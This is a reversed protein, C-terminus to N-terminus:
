YLNDTLGVELTDLVYHRATTEISKHGLAKQAKRIDEKALNTGVFRRFDHPKVHKFNCKAAYKQVVKWIGTESIHTNNARNGRGAFSTFIYECPLPQVELWKQILEYAEVSLHADRYEIDTKGCVQIKYGDKERVIQDLTLSAIESARGGSSAMAALLARDRIGILTSPDPTECLTRMSVPEIRTRTNRKLRDKLAKVKVGNVHDFQLFVSESLLKKSAAEKIVRKVASLMRNITNPSMSTSLSLEDRWKVLTDASLSDLGQAEAFKRYAACDRRYMRMSSDGLQGTLLSQIDPLDQYIAVMKSQDSHMSQIDQDM